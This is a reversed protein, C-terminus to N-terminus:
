MRETNLICCDDLVDFLLERIQQLVSSDNVPAGPGPPGTM